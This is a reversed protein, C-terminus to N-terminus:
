VLIPLVSPIVEVDIDDFEQGLKLVEPLVAKYRKSMSDILSEGNKLMADATKSRDKGSRIDASIRKKCLYPSLSDSLCRIINFVDDELVAEKALAIWRKLSKVSLNMCDVVVDDSDHLASIFRKEALKFVEQNKSQDSVDGTLERRIDDPCIIPIDQLHNQIYTSKGSGSIGVFLNIIKM